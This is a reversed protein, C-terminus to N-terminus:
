TLLFATKKNKILIDACIKNIETRIEEKTFENNFFNQYLEDFMMDFNYSRGQLKLKKVGIDLVQSVQKETFYVSKYEKSYKPCLSFNEKGEDTKSYYKVNQMIDEINNYEDINSFFSYHEIHYPCNFHCYQNILVEVRSIDSLLKDLKNINEITYEPRLVVVEYKELMKNYFKTEDFKKEESIKKLPQLVSCHMKADSYRTKIHNYLEKTSVIFRSNFKYAIDLLNNSYEDFLYEKSKINTFTFTPIIGYNKTLKELYNEVITLNNLKYVSPRAGTGWKCYPTGYIYKAPNIENELLKNLIPVFIDNCFMFPMFYEVNNYKVINNM